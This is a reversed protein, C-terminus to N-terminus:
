DNSVTKASVGRRADARFILLERPEDQHCGIGTVDLVEHDLLNLRLAARRLRQFVRLSDLGFPLAELRTVVGALDLQGSAALRALSRFNGRVGPGYVLPPRVM